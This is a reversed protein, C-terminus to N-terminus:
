TQPSFEKPLGYGSLLGTIARNKDLLKKTRKRWHILFENNRDKIGCGTSLFKFLSVLVVGLKDDLVEGWGVSLPKHRRNLTRGYLIRHHACANRVDVYNSLWNFLTPGDMCYNHAIKVKSLRSLNYCFEVLEGFSMLEVTAWLPLRPFDAKYREKYYSVFGEQSRREVKEKLEALWRGHESHFRPDFITVDEYVFAGAGPETVLVNVVSNRLQVEAIEFAELFVNRLQRDFFYIKKLDSFTIAKEPMSKVCSMLRFTTEAKLFREVQLKERDEIQVNHKRLWEVSEELSLAPKIYKDPM